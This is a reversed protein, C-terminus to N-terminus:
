WNTFTVQLLGKVASHFTMNNFIPFKFFQQQQFTEKLSKQAAPM